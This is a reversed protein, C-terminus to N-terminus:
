KRKNAYQYVRDMNQKEIVDKDSTLIKARVEEENEEDNMFYTIPYNQNNRGKIVIHNKIYNEIKKEDDVEYYSYTIDNHNKDFVGVFGLGPKNGKEIERISDANKYKAKKLQPYQVDYEKLFYDIMKRAVDYTIKFREDTTIMPRYMESETPSLGGMISKYDPKFNPNYMPNKVTKEIEIAAKAGEFGKRVGFMKELENQKLKLEAGFYMIKIRTNGNINDYNGSNPSNKIIDYKGMLYLISDNGMVKVKRLDRDYKEFDEIMENFLSVAYKDDTLRGALKNKTDSRSGPRLRAVDGFVSEKIYEDFKTILKSEKYNTVYLKDIKNAADINKKNKRNKKRKKHISAASTKTFTGGRSGIDGSGKTSGRVDGPVSSPQASHIAGMGNVNSNTSFASGSDWGSYSTGNASTFSGEAGGGVATGSGVIGTSEAGEEIIIENRNLINKYFKDLLNDPLSNLDEFDALETNNKNKLIYDLKEERSLEKKM